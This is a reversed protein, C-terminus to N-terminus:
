GFVGHIYDYTKKDAPADSFVKETDGIEVLSGECLFATRDALRRAQLVLNTM